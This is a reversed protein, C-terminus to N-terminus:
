PLTYAPINYNHSHRQVSLGGGGLFHGGKSGYDFVYGVVLSDVSDVGLVFLHMLLISVIVLM